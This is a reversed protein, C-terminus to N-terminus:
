KRSWVWRGDAYFVSRAVLTRPSEVRAGPPICSDLLALWPGSHLRLPNREFPVIQNIRRAPVLPGGEAIM